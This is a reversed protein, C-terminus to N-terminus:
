SRFVVQPRYASGPIQLAVVVCRYVIRGPDMRELDVFVVFLHIGTLKYVLHDFFQWEADVRNANITAM